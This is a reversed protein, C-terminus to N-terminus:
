IWPSWTLEWPAWGGGLFVNMWKELCITRALHCYRAGGGEWIEVRGYVKKWWVRRWGGRGSETSVKVGEIRRFRDTAM